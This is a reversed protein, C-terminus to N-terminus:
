QMGGLAQFPEASQTAKSQVLRGPIAGAGLRHRYIARPAQHEPELIAIGVIDFDDVVVLPAFGHDELFNV